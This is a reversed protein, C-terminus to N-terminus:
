SQRAAEKLKAWVADVQARLEEVTGDNTLVFDSHAAKWGDDIQQAMRRRAEAELERRAEDSLTGDSLAANGAARAVFRAIRTAESARVLIVRDFRRRWGEARGHKTEFVLASEVVVVADPERAGIQAILEEQRAITAPHVIANLEEVRGEGFAMRALAARDLKGDAAVVGPGFREVIQAYVAQGPQMLARGIEDASLVQAGLEAFRRAATTKGSGLGGTLGVRLM